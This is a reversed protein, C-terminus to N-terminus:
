PPPLISRVVGPEDPFAQNGTLPNLSLNNQACVEEMMPWDNHRTHTATFRYPEALATPSTIEFDTQIRDPAINYIHEIMRVDNGAEGALLGGLQAIEARPHIAVTDVVLTKGEWHGISDGGFTLKPNEAHGRGDTYIRRVENTQPIITIQGPTFVFEYLRNLRTMVRLAGVPICLKTNSHIDNNRAEAEALLKDQRAKYLPTLRMPALSANANTGDAARDILWNGSWDPLQAISQWTDGQPAEQASALATTALLLIGVCVTRNVLM